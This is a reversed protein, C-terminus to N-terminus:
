RLEGGGGDGVVRVEITPAVTPALRGDSAADGGSGGRVVVASRWWRRRRGNAEEGGRQGGIRIGDASWDSEGIVRRKVRPRDCPLAYSKGIRFRVIVM